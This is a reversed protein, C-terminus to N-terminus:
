VLRKAAGNPLWPVSGCARAIPQPGLRNESEAPGGVPLDSNRRCCTRDDSSEGRDHISRCARVRLPRAADLPTDAPRRVHRSCLAQSPQLPHYCGIGRTAFRLPCSRRPRPRSGRATGVVLPRLPAHQAKRGPVVWCARDSVPARRTAPEGDRPRMQRPVPSGIPRGDLRRPMEVDGPTAIRAVATTTARRKAPSFMRLFAPQGQRRRWSNQQCM